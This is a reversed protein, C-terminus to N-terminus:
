REIGSTLRTACRADDASARMRGASPRAPAEGLDDIPDLLADVLDLADGVLGCFFM